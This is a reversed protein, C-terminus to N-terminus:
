SFLHFFQYFSSVLGSTLPGLIMEPINSVILLMIIIFGYQELTQTIYYMRNPLLWFLIKSGDLPPVPILNFFALSANIVILYQLFGFLWAALFRPLANFVKIPILSFIGVCIFCLIINSMPGALATLLMGTKRDVSRFNNPNVQVPKAWGFRFFTLCLFGIPDLHRLPNLSLRGMNRATDDGLKYASFGHCFEHFTLAVVVAPLRFLLDSINFNFM